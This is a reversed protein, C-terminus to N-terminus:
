VEKAKTREKESGRRFILWMVLIDIILVLTISIAMLHYTTMIVENILRVSYSKMSGPQSSYLGM